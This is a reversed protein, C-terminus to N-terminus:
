VKMHEHARYQEVAYAADEAFKFSGLYARKDPESSRVRAWWRSAVRFVRNHGSTNRRHLHHRNLSNERQSVLRLNCRRNDLGDGNIHDVQVGAPANLAKRHFLEGYANMVYNVNHSRRAFWGCSAALAADVPDYLFVAAKRIPKSM